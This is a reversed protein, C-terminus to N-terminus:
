LGLDRKLKEFEEDVQQARLRRKEEAASPGSTTRRHPPLKSGPSSTLPTESVDSAPPRPEQLPSSDDNTPTGKAATTYGGLNYVDNSSTGSRRRRSSGRGRAGFGQSKWDDDRTTTGPATSTDTKGPDAVNPQPSDGLDSAYRAGDGRPEVRPANTSPASRARRSSGRGRSSSGFGQSKWADDDNTAAKDMASGTDQSEPQPSISDSRAEFQGNSPGIRARRSRGRGRGSTGFGETKWVDDDKKETDGVAGDTVGPQPSVASSPSTQKPSSPPADTDQVSGATGPPKDYTTSPPYKSDPSTPTMSEVDNDWLSASSQRGVRRDYSGSVIMEKYRSQLSVLRKRAKGLYGKIVNKRAELEAIKQKTDMLETYRVAIQQMTKLTILEKDVDSLKSALQQVFQDNDDMERAIEDLSGRQLLSYLQDDYTNDMDSMMNNKSSSTSGKTSGELLGLMGKLFSDGGGKAMASATGVLLDTLISGFSDGDTDYESDFDTPMFDQWDTSRRTQDNNMYSQKGSSLSGGFLTDDDDTFPQQEYSSNSRYSKPRRHPPIYNTTPPNNVPTVPTPAQFDQPPPPPPSVSEEPAFAKNAETMDKKTL